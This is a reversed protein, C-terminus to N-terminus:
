AHQDELARVHEWTIQHFVFSSYFHWQNSFVSGDGSQEYLWIGAFNVDLLERSCQWCSPGGGGVLNGTAGVKAHVLVLSDSRVLSHEALWREGLRIARAEAHVAMKNCHAACYGGCAEDDPRGNNAAGIVNTGRVAASHVIGDFVSCGRSSKRCRSARAAEVAATVAEPPPEYQHQMIQM